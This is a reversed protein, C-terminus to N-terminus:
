GVKLNDRALNNHVNLQLAAEFCARAEPYRALRMLTVGHNSAYEASSPDMDRAKKFIPLAGVLDGGEALSIARANLASASVPAPLPAGHVVVLGVLVVLVGFVRTLRAM